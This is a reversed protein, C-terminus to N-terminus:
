PSLLCDLGQRAPIFLGYVGLQQTLYAPLIRAPRTLSHAQRCPPLAAAGCVKPSHMYPPWALHLSGWLACGLTNHAQDLPDVPVGGM